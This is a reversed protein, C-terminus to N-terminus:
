PERENRSAAGANVVASVTVFPAISDNAPVGDARASSESVSSPAVSDSSGPSQTVTLPGAQMRSRVSSMVDAGSVFAAFGIM